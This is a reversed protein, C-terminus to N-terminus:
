KTGHLRLLRTVTTMAGPWVQSTICRLLSLVLITASFLVAGVEELTVANDARRQMEGEFDVTGDGNNDAERVVAEIENKSTKEGLLKIM